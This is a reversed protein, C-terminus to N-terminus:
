QVSDNRMQCRLTAPIDVVMANNNRSRAACIAVFLCLARKTKLIVTRTELRVVFPVCPNANIELLYGDDRSV